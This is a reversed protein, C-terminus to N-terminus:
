KEVELSDTLSQDIEAWKEDAARAADRLKEMDTVLVDRNATWNDAFDGMTLNAHHQGWARATDNELDLAGKFEGVLMDLERVLDALDARVVLDAM